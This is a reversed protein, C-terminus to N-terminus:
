ASIKVAGKIYGAQTRAAVRSMLGPFEELTCVHRVLPRLDVIGKKILRIAPVMTDRLGSAPAANVVTFGGTHWADGPFMAQGHSWGFLIIRGGRRVIRSAAEIGDQTGSTEIVTDYEHAKIDSFMESLPQEASNITKGCGFNSAMDLRSRDIDIVLLEDLPARALIQIIVLGMFGAGILAIRQGAMVHCHDVGTICCAVPEVIWLEDPISTDPIVRAIDARCNVFDAFGGLAVRDGEKLGSVGAGLKHIYGVGEHGPPAASPATSGNKFTYLDWACIGCSSVRVQIEGPAPDSIDKEIIEAGGKELYRVSRTKM